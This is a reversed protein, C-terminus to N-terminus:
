DTPTARGHALDVLHDPGAENRKSKVRLAVVERQM